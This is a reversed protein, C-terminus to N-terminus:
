GTVRRTSRTKPGKKAVLSSLVPEDIGLWMASPRTGEGPAQM